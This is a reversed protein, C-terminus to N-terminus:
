ISKKFSCFSALSLRGLWLSFLYPRLTAPARTTKVQPKARWHIQQCVKASSHTMTSLEAQIYTISRDQYTVCIVESLFSCYFCYAESQSFTNTVHLIEFYWHGTNVFVEQSDTLFFCLQFFKPAFSRFLGLYSAHSCTCPRILFLPLVCELLHIGKWTWWMPSLMLIPHIQTNTCHPTGGPACGQRGSRLSSVRSSLQPSAKSGPPLLAAATCAGARAWCM